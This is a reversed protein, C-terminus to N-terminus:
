PVRAPIGPCFQARFGEPSREVKDSQLAEAPPTPEEKVTDHAESKVEPEIVITKSLSKLYRTMGLNGVIFGTEKNQFQDPASGDRGV